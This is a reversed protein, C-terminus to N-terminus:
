LANQPVLAPLSDNRHRFVTAAGSHLPESEGSLVGSTKPRLGRNEHPGVYNWPGM